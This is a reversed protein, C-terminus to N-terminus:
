RRKKEPRNNNDSAVSFTKVGRVGPPSGLRVGPPSGLIDGSDGTDREQLLSSESSPVLSYPAAEGRM